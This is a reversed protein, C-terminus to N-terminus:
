PLRILVDVVLSFNDKDNVSVYDTMDPTAGKNILVQAVDGLGNECAYSLSTRGFQTCLHFFVYM